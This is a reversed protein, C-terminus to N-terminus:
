LVRRSIVVVHIAAFDAASPGSIFRAATAALSRKPLKSAVVNAPPAHALWFVCM